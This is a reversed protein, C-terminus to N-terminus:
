KLRQHYGDLDWSYQKNMGTPTVREPMYQMQVPYVVDQRPSLPTATRYQDYVINQSTTPVVQKQPIQQREMDCERTVEDLVKLGTKLASRYPNEQKLPNTMDEDGGLVATALPVAVKLVDIFSM